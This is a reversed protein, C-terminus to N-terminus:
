GKCILKDIISDLRNGEKPAQAIATLIQHKNDDYYNKLQNTIRLTVQLATNYDTEPSLILVKEDSLSSILDSNRISKLLLGALSKGVSDSKNDQKTNIQFSIVCLSRNLRKCIDLQLNFIKEFLPYSIIRDCTQSSLSNSIQPLVVGTLATKKGLPSLIYEKITVLGADKPLFVEGCNICLCNVIPEAFINNCSQCYFDESPREYDVGIHRLRRRCKPCVLRNEYLFDNEPAICACAYHHLNRQRNIHPLRCKPCVERFNLQYYDCTPCVHLRDHAYGKILELQELENIWTFEEGPSVDLFVALRPYVYAQKASILRQPIFSNNPRTLLYRLFNTLQKEKLSFTDALPMFNNTQAYLKLLSNIKDQIEAASLPLLATEDALLRYYGLNDNSTIAFIPILSLNQHSRIQKLWKIIIASSAAALIILQSNEAENQRIRNSFTVSLNPINKIFVFYDREEALGVLLAKCCNNM